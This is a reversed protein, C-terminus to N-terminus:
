PHAGELRAPDIATAHEDLWDAINTHEAEGYQTRADAAYQRQVEAAERIAEAKVTAEDRFVGIAMVLAALHSAHGHVVLMVDDTEWEGCPCFWRPRGDQVIYRAEHGAVTMAVLTRSAVPAPEATLDIGDRELDQSLTRRAEANGQWRWYDEMNSAPCNNIATIVQDREALFKAVVQQLGSM